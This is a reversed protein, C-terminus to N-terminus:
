DPYVSDFYAYDSIIQPVWNRPVQYFQRSFSRDIANCRFDRVWNTANHVARVNDFYLTGYCDSIDIFLDYGVVEGIVSSLSASIDTWDTTLDLDCALETILTNGQYNHYVEAYFKATPNPGNSTLNSKYNISIELPLSFPEDVKQYTYQSKTGRVKKYIYYSSPHFQAIRIEDGPNEITIRGVKYQHLLSPTALGAIGYKIRFYTDQVFLNWGRQGNEAAAAIWDDRVSQSLGQWLEGITSLQQAFRLFNKRQRSVFKTKRVVRSFSFRDGPQLTDRYVQEQGEPIEIYSTKAM